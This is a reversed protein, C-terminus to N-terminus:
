EESSRKKPLDDDDDSTDMNRHDMGPEMDHGKKNHRHGINVSVGLNFQTGWTFVFGSEKRTEPGDIDWNRQAYGLGGMSFNLATMDTVNIGAAPFWLAGFGNYRDEIDPTGAIGDDGVTKGNLYAVNLQNYVFFSRSVPTTFRIFPGVLLDQTKYESTKGLTENITKGVGIGFNIGVTMMKNFQYGIGPAVQWSRNKDVVDTAGPTGANNTVKTSQYGFTGYLLLSGAGQAQATAVTGVALIALILKKM